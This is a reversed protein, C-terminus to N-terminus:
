VVVRPPWKWQFAFNLLEQFIGALARLILNKILRIVTGEGPFQNFSFPPQQQYNPPAQYTPQPQPVYQPQTPYPPAVPVPQPQAYTYHVPPPTYPTARYQPQPVAVPQAPYVPAKPPFPLPNHMTPREQGQGMQLIPSSSTDRFVEKRCSDNHPCQGCEDDGDQYLRGWCTPASAPRLVQLHVM